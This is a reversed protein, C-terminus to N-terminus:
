ALSATYEAFIGCVTKRRVTQFGAHRLADLVREPPVCQEITQAYYAWLEPTRPALRTFMGVTRSLVGLYARLASRGLRTGPRTIELICLRGPGHQGGPKLVRHFERFSAHLDEVHRLAYGMSLFDFSGDPFPLSDATGLVATIDLRERARQMMQKSPDVGVLQGGPGILALAEGALLGTGVAVDVVSMGPQLGARNLAQRRYWRGSGLSLWREVRDYDGATEDFIANLFAQKDGPQLYAGAIVPHPALKIGHDGATEPAVVTTAM